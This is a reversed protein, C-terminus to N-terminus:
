HGKHGAAGTSGTTTEAAAPAAPAAKKADAKKAAAPAAKKDAHAKADTAFAMNSALMGFTIASAVALKMM